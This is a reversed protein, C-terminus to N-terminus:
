ILALQILIFGQILSCLHGRRSRSSETGSNRRSEDVFRAYWAEEHNSQIGGEDEKDNVNLTFVNQNQGESKSKPTDSQFDYHVTEIGYMNGLMTTDVQNPNSIHSLTPLAFTSFEAM